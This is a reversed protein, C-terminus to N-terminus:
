PRAERAAAAADRIENVELAEGIRALELEVLELAGALEDCRAEARAKICRVVSELNLLSDQYKDVVALIQEATAPRSQAKARKKTASM